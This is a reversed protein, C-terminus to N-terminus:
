DEIDFSDKQKVVEIGFMELWLKDFDQAYAPSETEIKVGPYQLSHGQIFQM